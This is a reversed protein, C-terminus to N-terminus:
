AMKAAAMRRLEDDVLPLWERAASPDGSEIRSLIRMADGPVPLLPSDPVLGSALLPFEDDGVM